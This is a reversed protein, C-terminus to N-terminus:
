GVYQADLRCVRKSNDGAYVSSEEVWKKFRKEMTKMKETAVETPLVSGSYRFHVIGNFKPNPECHSTILTHGNIYAQNQTHLEGFRLADDISPCNIEVWVEQKASDDISPQLSIHVEPGSEMKVPQGLEDPHLELVANRHYDPGGKPGLILDFYLRGTNEDKFQFHWSCWGEPLELRYRLEVSEIDYVLLCSEKRYCYYLFGGDVHLSALEGGAGRSVKANFETDIRQILEGTEPNLVEILNSTAVFLRDGDLLTDEVAYDFERQWKVEPKNKYFCYLLGRKYLRIREGHLDIQEDAVHGLYLFFLEKYETPVWSRYSGSNLVMCEPLVKFSWVETLALNWRKVERDVLNWGYVSEGIIKSSTMRPQTYNFTGSKTDCVLLSSEGKEPYNRENILVHDGILNFLSKRAIACTLESLMSLRLGDGDEFYVNGKKSENVSLAGDLKLFYKKGEREIEGRPDLKCREYDFYRLGESDISFYNGGEDLSFLQSTNKVVFIVFQGACRYIMM